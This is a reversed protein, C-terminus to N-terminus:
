RNDYDSLYKRVPYEKQLILKVPKAIEITKSNYKQRWRGLYIKQKHPDYQNLVEALRKTHVYVDDDFHCFWSFHLLNFHCVAEINLSSGSNHDPLIHYASILSCAIILTMRLILKLQNCSVQLESRGGDTCLVAAM